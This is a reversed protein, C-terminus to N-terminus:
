IQGSGTMDSRIRGVFKHEHAKIAKAVNGALCTKCRPLEGTPTIRVTLAGDVRCVPCTGQHLCSALRRVRGYMAMVDLASPPIM